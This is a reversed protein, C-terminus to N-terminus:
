CTWTCRIKLTPFRGANSGPKAPGGGHSSDVLVVRNAQGSWRGLDQLLQLFGRDSGGRLWGGGAAPTSTVTDGVGVLLPMREIPVREGSWPWFRMPDRPGHARQVIRRLPGGGLAAIHQNILVLLGAEELSGTLMFQIDTTGVDGAVSPKIRETGDPNRGLNPAVHLFLPDQLGLAEAENLLQNMLQELMLQLSRQAEVAGAM